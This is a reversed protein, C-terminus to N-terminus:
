ISEDKSIYDRVKLTVGLDAAIKYCKELEQETLAQRVVSLLTKKCM